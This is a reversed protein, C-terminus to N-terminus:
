EGCIRRDRERERKRDQERRPSHTSTHTHTEILILLLMASFVKLWLTDLLNSLWFFWIFFFRLYFFWCQSWSNAVHYTAKKNKWDSDSTFKEFVFLCVCCRRFCSFCQPSCDFKQPPFFWRWHFETLIQALTRPTPFNKPVQTDSQKNNNRHAFIFSFWRVSLYPFIQTLPSNRVIENPFKPGSPNQSHIILTNARM